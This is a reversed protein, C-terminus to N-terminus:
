FHVYGPLFFSRLYLSSWLRSIGKRWSVLRVRRGPFWPDVVRRAIVVIFSSLFMLFMFQAIIKLVLNAKSSDRRKKSLQIPNSSLQCLHRCDSASLSCSTGRRRDRRLFTLDAFARKAVWGYDCLFASPSLGASCMTLNFFWKKSFYKTLPSILFAM